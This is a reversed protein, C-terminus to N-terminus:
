NARSNRRRRRGGAREGDGGKGADGGKGPTAIRWWRLDTSAAFGGDGGDIRGEPKDRLHLSSGSGRRRRHGRAEAEEDEEDEECPAEAETATAVRRGRRREGSGIRMLMGCGGEFVENQEDELPRNLNKMDFLPFEREPPVM